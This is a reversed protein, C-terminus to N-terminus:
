EKKEEVKNEEKPQEATEEQKEVEPKAEETEVPAEEVPKEAAATEEAKKKAEAENASKREAEMKIRTKKPITVYKEKSEKDKYVVIDAIFQNRGFNSSIKRIVTLEEDKKLADIVEKRTPTAESEIEVILETRSLLPNETQNLIKTKM